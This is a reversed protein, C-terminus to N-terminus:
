DFNEPESHVPVIQLHQSFYQPHAAVLKGIRDSPIQLHQSFYEVTPRLNDELNYAVLHPFSALVKGLRERPIGVKGLRDRSIGVKGLLGRPIGVENLLYEVHPRINNDLSLGFLQPFATFMRSLKDKPVGVDSILYRNTGRTTLDFTALRAQTVEFTMLPRIKLPVSLGLIQPFAAIVKGLQESDMGVEDSLYSVTPRLNNVLSYALDQCWNSIEDWLYSVTPRLNNALSYAFVKPHQRVVKAVKAPAVGVELLWAVTPRLDDEMSMSLLQPFAILVKATDKETLQVEDALFGVFAALSKPDTEDALFGVVAALSKPDTDSSLIRPCDMIIKGVKFPAIRAVKRM